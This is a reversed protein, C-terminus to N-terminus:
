NGRHPRGSIMRHCDEQWRPINWVRTYSVDENSTPPTRDRSAALWPRNLRVSDHPFSRFSSLVLVTYPEKVWSTPGPVRSSWSAGLSRGASASLGVIINSTQSRSLCVLEGAEAQTEGLGELQEAITPLYAM